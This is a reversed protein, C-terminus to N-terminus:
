TVEMEVCVQDVVCGSRPFLGPPGSLAGSRSRVEDCVADTVFV